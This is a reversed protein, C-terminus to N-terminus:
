KNFVNFFNTFQVSAESCAILAIKMGYKNEQNLCYKNLRLCVSYM